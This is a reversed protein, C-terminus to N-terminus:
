GYTMVFIAGNGGVGGAGGAGAGEGVGGGGAGGGRGGGSGGLRGAVGATISGGGGGGGMGGRMSDGIQGLIGPTPAAGSAGAAGGNGWGFPSHNGGAVAAVLALGVTSGAGQGGGSGGYMSPAGGPSHVPIASHGAGGGGGYETIGPENPNDTGGRGSMSGPNSSTTTGNPFGGAATAAVQGVQGTGIGGGGGGSGITGSNTGLIGGGGGGAVIPHTLGTAFQTVGGNGGNAGPGGGGAGGAGSLGGAGVEVLQNGALDSALFKHNIRSGGGGGSGGMRALAGTASAGGGGGGGAGYLIVEIVKPVFSTPRTWTFGAGAVTFSQVDVFSFNQASVIKWDSIGNNIFMLCGNAPVAVAAASGNITDGAAPTVTLLAGGGHESVVMLSGPNRFNQVATSIAPLAQAIAGGIANIRLWTNFGPNVTTIVAPVALYPRPLLSPPVDISPNDITGAWNPYVTSVSDLSSAAIQMVCNVGGHVGSPRVRSIEEAIIFLRPVGIPIARWDIAPGGTNRPDVQSGDLLRFTIGSNGTDSRAFLGSGAANSDEISSRGSIEIIDGDALDFVVPLSPPVSESRIDLNNKIVRLGDFRCGDVLEIISGSDIGSWTVNSMDFTSVPVRCYTDFEITYCGGGNNLARLTTIKALLDAWVNFITPGNQVGFPEFILCQSATGITAASGILVWGTAAATAKRYIGPVDTRILLVEDPDPNPETTGPAVTPDSDLVLLVPTSSVPDRVVTLGM